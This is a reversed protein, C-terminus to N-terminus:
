IKFYYIIVNQPPHSYKLWTTHSVSHSQNQSVSAPNVCQIYPKSLSVTRYVVTTLPTSLHRVTRSIPWPKFLLNKFCKAKEGTSDSNASRNTFRALGNQFKDLRTCVHREGSYAMANILMGNGLQHKIEM